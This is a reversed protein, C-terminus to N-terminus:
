TRVGKSPQPALIGSDRSGGTCPPVPPSHRVVRDRLNRLLSLSIYTCIYRLMERQLQKCVVTELINVSMCASFFFPMKLICNDM